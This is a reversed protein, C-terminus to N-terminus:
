GPRGGRGRSPGRWGGARGARRRGLVFQPVDQAAGAEVVEYAGQGVAEVGDDALAAVAEGAAFALAHGDGPQEQGALADDDEVLRGGVQVVGGLRGDLLREGLGQFAAGGDDDGVPQGRHPGGVLDEDDLGAADHFAAGVVLEERRVPAVRLQVAGLELFRCPGVPGLIGHGLVGHRPGASVESAVVLSPTVSIATTSSTTAYAGRVAGDYRVADARIQCKPM